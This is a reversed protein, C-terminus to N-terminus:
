LDSFIRETLAELVIIQINRPSWMHALIKWVCSFTVSIRKLGDRPSVLVPINKHGLTLM